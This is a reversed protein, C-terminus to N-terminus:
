KFDVDGYMGIKILSDANPVDIKVAYVLNQREEQTQITKPTFEAKSAIWSISGPYVKQQKGTTNIYVKVKQGLKIQNLQNEVIYIRLIMNHIDAIKYLPHGTSVVENEEAYKNLVTGSIPNILRSKELLDNIQETKVNYVKGEENLANINTTLSNTQASISEKLVKIQSDIDDLQKQTAAKDALLRLIRNREFEAKALQEKTAAIQISLDPRRVKTGKESTQAAIKQYYLQMSDINGLYQGATLQDGEMVKFSQLKGSAEASIVVETAEFTGSADHTPKESKCSFLFTSVSLIYFFRKM